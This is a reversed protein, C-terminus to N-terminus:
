VWPEHFHLIDFQERDLADTIDDSNLNISIQGTTKFPSKIDRSVGIFIIDKKDSGDYSPPVPTIIRSKHRRKLLGRHLALTVEQVGGGKYMDYPCVLGIKM